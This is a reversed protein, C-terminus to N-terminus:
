APIVAVIEYTRPHIILLDDGVVIYLYGRYAPVVAIIPAPLPYVTFTRPVVVGVNITFNIKTRDVRRIDKHERITSSVKTRQQDNLQPPKEDSGATKEGKGSGKGEASAKGEAGAKGEASAKGEAGTKGGQATSPQAGKPAQADVKAGGETKTQASGKKVDAKTDAAGGVQPSTTSKDAQAYVGGAGAILAASAVAALLGHKMTM